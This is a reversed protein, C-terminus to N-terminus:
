AHMVVCINEKWTNAYDHKSQDKLLIDEGNVMQKRPFVQLNM